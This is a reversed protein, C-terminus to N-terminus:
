SCMCTGYPNNTSFHSTMDCLVCFKSYNDTDDDEFEKDKNQSQCDHCFDSDSGIGCSRCNTEWFDDNLHEM